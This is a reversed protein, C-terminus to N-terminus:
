SKKQEKLRKLVQTHLAKLRTKEKELQTLDKLDHEITRKLFQLKEPDGERITKQATQCFSEPVTPKDDQEMVSRNVLHIDFLVMSSDPHDKRWQRLAKEVALWPLEAQVEYPVSNVHVIWSLVRSM